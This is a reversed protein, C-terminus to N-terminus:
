QATISITGDPENRARLDLLVALNSALRQPDNIRFTGSARMAAVEPAPARIKVRSYRNAEQILEGVEIRDFQRLLSPWDNGAPNTPFQKLLSLGTSGTEAAQGPSLMKTTLIRQGEARDRQTVEVSGRLLHVAFRGDSIASVDFVTGHATVSLAGAMVTFPRAEHAVEFRAQGRELHLTRASDTFDARVISGTDLTLISGDALKIRRIEGISTQMTNSAKAAVAMSRAADTSPGPHLPKWVFAAVSIIGLCLAAALVSLQRRQRRNAAIAPEHDFELGKGLNYIESIRAYAARHSPSAAMWADFEMKRDAAAPGRMAAFWAAAEDRLFDSPRDMMM